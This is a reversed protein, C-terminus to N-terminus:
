TFRRRKELLFVVIALQIMKIPFAMYLLGYKYVENWNFNTLLTFPILICGEIFSILMIAKFTAVIYKIIHLDDEICCNIGISYMIMLWSKVILTPPFLAEAFHTISALMFISIIVRIIFVKSIKVTQHIFVISFMITLFADTCQVLLFYLLSDINFVEM